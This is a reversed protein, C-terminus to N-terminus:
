RRDRRSSSRSTRCRSRDRTACRRARSRRDQDRAAAQRRWRLGPHASQRPRRRLHQGTCGGRHQAAYEVPGAAQRARGLVEAVQREQRGQGRALQHLRRQYVHQGGPGVHCRHGPPFPRERAAAAAQSAEAARHGRRLSGAQARVGHAGTRASQVQHGHGLGQRHGLHQGGQRRARTHGFSWAYLNKGIERVFKGNRDFELLQAAAAAYAPGTTNGRSFVFVHGKSNVAVGTVEGLHMDRPMQLPDPVSDFRITPVNDQARACAAILLLSLAIGLKNM